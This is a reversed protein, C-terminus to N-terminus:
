RVTGYSYICCVAGYSYKLAGYWLQIYLMGYWLQIYLMGYWLQIKVCRVMVTYVVTKRFIFGRTRFTYFVDFNFLIINIHFIRM